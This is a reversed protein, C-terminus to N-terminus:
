MNVYKKSVEEYKKRLEELERRKAEDLEKINRDLEEIKEAIERLIRELEEREVEHRAEKEKQLEAEKKELTKKSIISLEETISLMALLLGYLFSIFSAHFVISDKTAVGIAFFALSLVFLIKSAFGYDFRPEGELVMKSVM